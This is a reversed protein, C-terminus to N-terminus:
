EAITIKATSISAAATAATVTLCLKNGMKKKRLGAVAQGEGLGGGGVVDGQHRGRAPAVDSEHLPGDGRPVGQRVPHERLERPGHELVRLHLLNERLLFSLFLLLFEDCESRTRFCERSQVKM